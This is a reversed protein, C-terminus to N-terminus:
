SGPFRWPARPNWWGDDGRDCRAMELSVFLDDHRLQPHAHFFLHPIGSACFEWALATVGALAVGGLIGALLSPYALLIKACGYAGM